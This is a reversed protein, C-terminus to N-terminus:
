GGVIIDENNIKDPVLKQSFDQQPLQPKIDINENEM